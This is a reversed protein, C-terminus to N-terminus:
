LSFSSSHFGSSPWVPIMVLSPTTILQFRQPCPGLVKSEFTVWVQKVGWESCSCSLQGSEGSGAELM